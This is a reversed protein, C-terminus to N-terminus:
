LFPPPPPPHNHPQLIPGTPHRIFGLLCPWSAHSGLALFLSLEEHHNLNLVVKLDPSVQSLSLSLSLSLPPPSSSSSSLIYLSSSSTTTTLIYLPSLCMFDHLSFFIPKPAEPSASTSAWFWCREDFSDRIHVLPITSQQPLKWM